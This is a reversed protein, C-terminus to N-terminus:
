HRLLPLRLVFETGGGPRSTGTLAGGQEQALWGSVRLGIGLDEVPVDGSSSAGFAAADADEPPPTGNNTFTLVAYGGDTDLAVLLAPADVPALAREANVIINLAIQLLQRPNAMVMREDGQVTATVRIKTLAHQRMTLARSAVVKLGTPEMRDRADRAFTSLDTLLTSARRAQAAIARGRVQVLDTAGQAMELLEASGSIVQLANNVDHVTSALVRSVLALHNARELWRPTPSFPSSMAGMM